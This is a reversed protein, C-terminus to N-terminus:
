PRRGAIPRVRIRCTRSTSSRTSPGPWGEVGIMAFWSLLKSRLSAVIAVQCSCLSSTPSSLNANKQADRANGAAHKRGAGYIEEKGDPPVLTASPPQRLQATREPDCSPQDRDTRNSCERQRTRVLGCWTVVVDRAAGAAVKVGTRRRALRVPARKTVRRRSGGARTVVPRGRSRDPGHEVKPRAKM